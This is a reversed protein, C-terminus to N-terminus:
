HCSVAITKFLTSALIVCCDQSGVRMVLNCIAAFVPGHKLWASYNGRAAIFYHPKNINQRAPHKGTM